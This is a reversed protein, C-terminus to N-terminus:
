IVDSEERRISRSDVAGRFGDSVAVTGGTLTLAAGEEFSPAIALREVSLRLDKAARFLRDRVHSAVQEIQGM